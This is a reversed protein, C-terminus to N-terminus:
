LDLWTNNNNHNNYGNEIIWIIFVASVREVCKITLHIKKKQKNWICFSNTWKKKENLKKKVEGENVFKQKQKQCRIMITFLVIIFNWLSHWTTFKNIWNQLPRLLSFVCFLSFFFESYFPFVFSYPSCAKSWMDCGIWSIGTHIVIKHKKRKQKELWNFVHM